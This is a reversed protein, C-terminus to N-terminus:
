LSKIFELNTKADDKPSAKPNVKIVKLNEDLIFTSRLVGMYARGYLKKEQWLDFYKIMELEPDSLLIFPLDNKERFKQHSKVDDKSVGIVITNNALFENYLERYNNAEITCGSTLDKPYFYLVIKKGKFSDLSVENSDADLLTFNPIIDGVKIM